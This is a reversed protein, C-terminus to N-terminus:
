GAGGRRRRLYVGISILPLVWLLVFTLNVLACVAHAVQMFFSQQFFATAAADNAHRAAARFGEAFDGAVALTSGHAAHWGGAIM